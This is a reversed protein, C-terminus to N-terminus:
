TNEIDHATYMKAAQSAFCFGNGPLHVIRWSGDVCCLAPVYTKVQDQGVAKEFGNLVRKLTEEAESPRDQRRHISAFTKSLKSRQFMAGM